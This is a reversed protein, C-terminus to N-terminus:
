PREYYKPWTAGRVIADLSTYLTNLQTLETGTIGNIEVMDKQWRTLFSHLRKSHRYFAPYYFRQAM